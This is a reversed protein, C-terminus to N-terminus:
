EERFVGKTLFLGDKVNTTNKLADGQAFSDKTQDGRLISKLGTINYTPEVRSTEVKQLQDVYDLIKSLQNTYLQEEQSSLPLSALSAVRKVTDLRIKSM